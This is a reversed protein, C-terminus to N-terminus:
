LVFPGLRSLTGTIATLALLAVSVSVGAVGTRLAAWVLLPLPAYVYVAAEDQSRPQHFVVLSVAGLAALLLAAEAWRIPSVNRLLRASDRAMLAFPPVILAALMNSPLRSRVVAWYDGEYRWGIWAVSAADLFSSLVPACLM